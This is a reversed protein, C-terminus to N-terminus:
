GLRLHPVVEPKPSKARLAGPFMEGDFTLTHQLHVAGAPSPNAAAPTPATRAPARGRVGTPIPYTGRSPRALIGTEEM